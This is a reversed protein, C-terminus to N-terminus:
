AAQIAEMNRELQRKAQKFEDINKLREVIQSEYEPMM